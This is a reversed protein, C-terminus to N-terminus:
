YLDKTQKHLISLIYLKKKFKADDLGQIPGQGIILIDKEKNDIHVCSSMAVGFLIANKEM